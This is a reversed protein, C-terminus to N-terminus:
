AIEGEETMRYGTLRLFVEELTPPKLEVNVGKVGSELIDAALRLLKKLDGEVIVYEGVKKADEIRTGLRDLGKIYLKFPGGHERILEEPTGLAVIRGKVIIAVRDALEQAEEMYHTTLFVTKGRRKLERIVEWTDRRAAPDLGTTPEDLFVIQPDGALAAAIGVRQKLGGSLEYFKARRKEQLGVLEILEDVSPGSDYLSRFLKINEEVTLRDLATFDQPLIGVVRKLKSAEKVVDLGAVKAEGSTPRRLGVLIEVTTTKGSGNPGLYAFVEGANVKFSVNDLAIVDRYVKRLNRVEIVTESLSDAL